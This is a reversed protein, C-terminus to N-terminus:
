LGTVNVGVACGVESGVDPGVCLGTVDVGVACGVESGVAIGM